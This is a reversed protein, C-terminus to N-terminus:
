NNLLTPQYNNTMLEGVSSEIYDDFAKHATQELHAVNAPWREGM